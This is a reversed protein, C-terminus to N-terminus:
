DQTHDIEDVTGNKNHFYENCTTDRIITGVEKKKVREEEKLVGALLTPMHNKSPEFPDIEHKPTEHIIQIPNGFRLSFHDDEMIPDRNETPHHPSNTHSM